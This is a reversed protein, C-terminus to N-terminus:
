SSSKFTFVIARIIISFIFYYNHFGVANFPSGGKGQRFLDFRLGIVFVRLLIDISQYM